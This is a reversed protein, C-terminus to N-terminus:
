RSGGNRVGESYGEYWEEVRSKMHEIIGEGGM